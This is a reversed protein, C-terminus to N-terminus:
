SLNLRCPDQNECDLDESTDRAAKSCAGVGHCPTKNLNMPDLDSDIGGTPAQLNNASQVRDYVSVVIPLSEFVNRTL